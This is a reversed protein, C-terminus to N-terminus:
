ELIAKIRRVGASSSEEKKIRFKGLEGTKQAHPGGCMECSVNGITFVKAVHGYKDEFLGIAGKKKADDVAMEACGVELDDKIWGNVLEEVEKKQEDTMKDLHTFDFRLRDATINSGKQLAHPGLVKQLAAQLLHTATHLKCTEESADALGGKFRQGAGERSLAQHKEFEADFEKKDFKIGKEEALEETMEYPFGYTSFLDFAETGSINNDKSMKKFERLGKELTTAFKEEEKTLQKLIFDKNKKLEPYTDQMIKIVVEAVKHTFVGEIGIQKGHRIARRILRRLIYGQDVNSPEIGKEDGLIFTAARVHDVIVRISKKEKEYNPDDKKGYIDTNDVGEQGLYKYKRLMNVEAVIPEIHPCHYNDPFDNLVSVTRELGMGTDVNRQKAKVYEYEVKDSQSKVKSEQSKVKNYEMFVDNWIEVYKGCSCSPQCDKGCAKKDSIYFMESDPGCPGTKGAPGWWNEKKNYKYIRDEPMGLSKWTNYSEEDFPADDDGKFVTVALRDLPIDLVNTLFEYSMEIAEKKWYDGLSWNGLMEFCTFHWQDGVDDIDGTRICKQFDVLRTGAPHKEGLLYPVLPHMGATTFLCTPDNEPILSASPIIAHGKDKFFNLFKERLEHAHM